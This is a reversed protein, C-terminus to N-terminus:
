RAVVSVSPAREGPMLVCRGSFTGLAPFPAGCPDPEAVVVTPARGSRTRKSMTTEAGQSELTMCRRYDRELAHVIRKM